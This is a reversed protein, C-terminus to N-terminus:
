IVVVLMPKCASFTQHQKCFIFVAAATLFDPYLIFITILFLMVTIAALIWSFM